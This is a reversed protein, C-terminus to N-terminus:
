RHSPHAPLIHEQGSEEEERQCPPIQPFPVAAQRHTPATHYIDPLHDPFGGPVYVRCFLCPMMDVSLFFLQGIQLIFQLVVILLLISDPSKINLM